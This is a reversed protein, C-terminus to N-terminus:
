KNPTASPEATVIEVRQNARHAAADYAHENVPDNDGCAVVRIQEWGVGNEVMTQAVALARQYSLAMGHDPTGFAEASSVHGRVEILAKMGKLKKASEVANERMADPITSQSQDFGVVGGLAYYDTPRVSQVEHDHGKIGPDKAEEKGRREMLRKALIVDGAPPSKTNVPNNFAERVAIAWDLLEASSTTGDGTDDGKSKGSDAPKMNMALLIVFFGMMLAVNDAFSILWEPAGEHEEHSGGGHGGGGGHGHGGSSHGNSQKEEDHGHDSM